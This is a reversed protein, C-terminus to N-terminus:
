RFLMGGNLNLTQGTIYSADENALFVVAAAIEDVTAVRGIPISKVKERGAPTRLEARSMETEVLGPAIANVTIGERSYIRALSRTLSILGAKSAAYHVQNLGGWQGGISALNIIRGWGKELMGPLAEQCCCFPGRLNIALIRNWDEDTLVEFPKEQATAANNVLIEISGMRRRVQGFVKRVGDRSELDLQYAEANVGMSNAERVVEEAADARERYTLAVARDSRALALSIARGIGRNGGTVLAIKKSAQKM